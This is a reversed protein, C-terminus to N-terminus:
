PEVLSPSYIKFPSSPIWVSFEPKDALVDGIEKGWLHNMNGTVQAIAVHRLQWPPHKVRYELCTGDKQSCYGWFRRSVFERADGPKLKLKKKRVQASLAMWQNKYQWRYEILGSAGTNTSPDSLSKIPLRIYNEGYTSRAIGAVIRKPIIEQIFVVGRRKGRSTRRFVYFRLNIQEFRHHFPARFLGFLRPNAFIFGVLSIFVKGEIHDLETGPPLYPQLKEPAIQFSTIVVGQIDAQLFPRGGPIFFSFPIRM